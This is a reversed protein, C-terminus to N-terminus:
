HSVVTGADKERIMKQTRGGWGLWTLGCICGVCKVFVHFEVQCKNLWLALEDAIQLTSGVRSMLKYTLMEKSNNLEWPLLASQLNLKYGGPM